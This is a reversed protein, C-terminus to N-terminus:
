LELIVCSPTLFITASHFTIAIYFPAVKAVHAAQLQERFRTNFFTLREKFANFNRAPASKVVLNVKGLGRTRGTGIRIIDEADAEEIFTQFTTAFADPLLVEGWFQMDQEFVERNYLIRDEATGWDRNIGVRTQLRTKVDAKMKENSRSRARRYYGSVHDMVQGCDRCSAHSSLPAPLTQILQKEKDLLCFTARDLLSDRIGHREEDAEEGPIPIFGSFRKCTQATKPLPVIPLNSEAIRSKSNEFYAPYLHPFYVKERLFLDEFEEKEPKPRLLRHAAAISGLLTSGAIYQLTKAGDAAHDSRIALPSRARVSLYFHQM